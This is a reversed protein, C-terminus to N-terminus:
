KGKPNEKFESEDTAPVTKGSPPAETRTQTGPPGEPPLRREINALLEKLRAEATKEAVARAEGRFYGFGMLAFIGLGIAVIALMASVFDLRGTQTAIWIWDPTAICAGSPHYAIQYGEIAPCQIPQPAM